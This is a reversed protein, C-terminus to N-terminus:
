FTLASGEAGLRVSSPIHLLSRVQKFRGRIKELDEQLKEYAPDECPFIRIMEILSELAKIKKSNKEDSGKHLLKQWTMAFGLYSGIKNYAMNGEKLSDPVHEKLMDKRIAKVM